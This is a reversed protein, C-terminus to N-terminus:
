KIMMPIHIQLPRYRRWGRRQLDGLRPLGRSLKPLIEFAGAGQQTLEKPHLHCIALLPVKSSVRALTRVVLNCSCAESVELWVCVGPSTKKRWRAWCNALLLWMSRAVRRSATM